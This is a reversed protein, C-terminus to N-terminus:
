SSFTNTLSVREVFTLEEIAHFNFSSSFSSIRGLINKAHIYIDFTIYKFYWPIVLFPFVLKCCFAKANFANLSFINPIDHQNNCLKTHLITLFMHWSYIKILLLGVHNTSLRQYYHIGPGAVTIIHWCSNYSKRSRVNKRYLFYHFCQM